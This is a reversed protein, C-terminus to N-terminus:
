LAETFTRSDNGPLSKLHRGTEPAVPLDLYVLNFKPGTQGCPPFGSRQSWFDAIVPLWGLRQAGGKVNNSWLRSVQGARVPQGLGPLAISIVPWCALRATTRKTRGRHVDFTFHGYALVAEGQALRNDMPFGKRPPESFQGQSDYWRYRKM